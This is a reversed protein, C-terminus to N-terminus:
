AGPLGDLRFFVGEAQAILTQNKDSIVAELYVFKGKQKLIKARAFIDCKAPNKFNIQFKKTAFCSSNFLEGMVVAMASDALSMIAGGHIVGNPNKVVDSFPLYLHSKDRGVSIVKIKLAREFECKAEHM